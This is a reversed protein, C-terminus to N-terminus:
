AGLGLKPLLNCPEQPFIGPPQGRAKQLCASVQMYLTLSEPHPPLPACEKWLHESTAARGGVMM